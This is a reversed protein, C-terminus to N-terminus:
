RNGVAEIRHVQEDSTTISTAPHLATWPCSGFGVNGIVILFPAHRDMVISLQKFKQNEFARLGSEAPRGNELFAFIISFREVVKARFFNRAIACAIDFPEQIVGPDHSVPQLDRGRNLIRFRKADDLFLKAAEVSIEPTKDASLGLLIAPSSHRLHRHASGFGIGHTAIECAATELKNSRCNAIRQHLRDSHDVVM